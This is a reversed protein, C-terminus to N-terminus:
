IYMELIKVSTTDLREINDISYRNGDADIIVFRTTSFRIISKYTDSVAFDMEGKDTIVKWYSFGFREKISIIKTIKPSFYRRNLESDIIAQTQSDFLNLDAIIGIEEGSGGKDNFVSIYERPKMFPFALHLSVPSYLVTESGSTLSLELLGGKTLRFQAVSPTLYNIDVTQLFSSSNDKITM